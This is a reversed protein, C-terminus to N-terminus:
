QKALKNLEKPRLAYGFIALSGIQSKFYNAMERKLLVAGVTFDSENNGIGDSIFYPNKSQITARGRHTWNSWRSQIM